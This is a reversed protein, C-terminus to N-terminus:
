TSVGTLYQAGIFTAMKLLSIMYEPRYCMTGSTYRGALQSMPMDLQRAQRGRQLCPFTGEASPTRESLHSFLFLECNIDIAWVQVKCRVSSPFTVSEKLKM